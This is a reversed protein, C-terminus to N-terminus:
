ASVARADDRLAEILVALDDPLPAHWECTRGTLPHQLALRTAHLAQRRFNQLAACLEPTARPPLLARRGYLPDGILPHHIHALHVRIQHTRGTELRVRLWAHARFREQVRYHTVASRGGQTVAQRLRDRAHRGLPADVTGGATFVGCAIADYEREIDRAALARVLQTHATLTRAVVLLGSTDKDLRHVLGARPLAALEPAHAILANVLTGSAHGAAPHVVLGAPKNIVILAEDEHVVALPIAEAGLALLPADPIFLGVQEGGVVRLRQTACAGDVRVQGAEIWRQLRSRSHAPFLRALAQDLRLGALEAGV